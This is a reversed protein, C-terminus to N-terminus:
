YWGHGQWFQWAEIPTHYRSEIYDLGWKIQTKPNTVWDSGFTAMKNGPLAQPIGYASTAPDGGAPNTATSRWGSEHNWLTVLADYQDDGWGYVKDMYYKAFEHPDSPEPAPPAPDTNTAWVANNHGNYIVLNGDTQMVLRSNPGADATHTSWIATGNANYIVLNGDTQMKVRGGAAKGDTNSSWLPNGTSLGKYLVLNGDTQFVTHFLENGSWLAQGTDLYNGASGAALTTARTGTSWLGNGSGNYVVFNGDDQVRAFSSATGQGATRTSWIATDNANYIVLNGDTQMKARGGNAQGDTDSAWLARGGAYAVLNGDTQMKVSVFGDPSVLSSGTALSQGAVLTSPPTAAGASVPTVLLSSSALVTALFVAPLAKARYSRWVTL